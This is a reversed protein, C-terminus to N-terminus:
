GKLYESIIRLTGVNYRKKDGRKLANLTNYSLGTKEQVVTLTRDQLLLKIEKLSLIDKM